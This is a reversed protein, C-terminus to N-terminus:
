YNGESFPDKDTFDIIDLNAREKEIDGGDDANNDIFKKETEEVSDYFYQASSKDGKIPLISSPTGTESHVEITNADQDYNLLTANWSASGLTLGQYIKEGEFFSGTGGSESLLIKRIDTILNTEIDDVEKIETDIQEGSYRFLECSIEYAFFSNRSGIYKIEYIGGYEPFYILDGEQPKTDTGYKACEEAFRRKSVMLTVSDQLNIGFKDMIKNQTEFFEYNSVFMEIQFSKDFKSITDEGFLNDLNQFKRFIYQVDFGYIKIQEIVLDEFLSSERSSVKFYNNRAM